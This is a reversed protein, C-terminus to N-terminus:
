PNYGPISVGDLDKSLKIIEHYIVDIEKDTLTRDISQFIFRFGIKIEDNKLNNYYDFIFVEKLIKNEYNSILNQLKELDNPVNISFSIDRIASPFESIQNAKIFKEPVRSIKKVHSSDIDIKDVDIESFIIDSKIKTHLNVRPIKKILLEKDSIFKQLISSFYKKDIKKQFDNYNNDVRGSGIIGLKRRKHVENDNNLYYVDSIEFIKISEKQRKENFLLNEILSEELSERLYNRNSDLPNDIEISKKSNTKVFPPNLSEYFGNSILMSRILDENSDKNLIPKNPISIKKNPINDYGIIRAIEEAM